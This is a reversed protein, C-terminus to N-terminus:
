LNNMYTIQKIEEETLARNYILISYIKGSLGQGGWRSFLSVNTPSTGVQSHTTTLKAEQYVKTNDVGRTSVIYNKENKLLFDGKSSANCEVKFSSDIWLMTNSNDYINQYQRTVDAEFYVSFTFEKPLLFNGLISSRNTNVSNNDFHARTLTFEKKNESRDIWVTDGPKGDRGDLWCILGGMVPTLGNKSYNNMLLKKSM